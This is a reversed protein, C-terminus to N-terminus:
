EGAGSAAVEDGEGVEESASPTLPQRREVEVDVRLIGEVPVELRLRQQQAIALRLSRASGSPAPGWLSRMSAPLRPLVEGAVALGPDGFVGIVVLDRRSSLSDLLELAQAFSVPEAQEISLRAADISAGDGVLLSYRGAPLNTPMTVPVAKRVRGGRFQVLDLNLTVSDGPRVVSRAAHAGVLRLTRPEVHRVIEVDISELAVEELDNQMLYSVLTFLHVAADMAASPGEFSQDIQLRGAEGLDIDALLDLGRSGVADTAADLAGLTSVALLTPTLLEVDAIRMRFLREGDGRLRVRVPVLPANGGVRGRIGVAHDFELAGVVPGVNTVKFSNSLNSIVTVVEATAMPVALTGLGLFPHGFALISDGRRDTVTGTSALKLDGDILLASVAAGPVLPAALSSGTTGAPALGGVANEILERSTRGFGAATWELASSGGAISAPRLRALSRELAERSGGGPLLATPEIALVDAPAESGTEIDLLRRMSEIPTIGAIAEDSFPWAFAVAGALKGDIFVPSGSMGAIVGTEELGRGSLRGLIFSTGPQVNQWVGVVEVEFREVGSGEFVSLGYGHQGREVAALPFIDGASFEEAAIPIGATLILV